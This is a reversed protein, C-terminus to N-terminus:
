WGSGRCCGSTTSGYFTCHNYYTGVQGDCDSATTCRVNFLTYDSNQTPCNNTVTWTVPSGDNEYEGTPWEWTSNWWNNPCGYVQMGILGCNASTGSPYIEDGGGGMRRNGGGGRIRSM